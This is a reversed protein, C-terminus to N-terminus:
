KCANDSQIVHASIQNTGLVQQRAKKARSEKRVSKLNPLGNSFKLFSSDTCKSPRIKTM